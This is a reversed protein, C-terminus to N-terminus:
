KECYCAYGLTYKKERDFLRDFVWLIPPTILYFLQFSLIFLPLAIIILPSKFRRLFIWPMEQLRVALYSFFGGREKIFIVKFGANKFLLELGYRAFNFYNHPEDHLGWGQPCTLFLKGKKKLIRYFENIVKQPDQVHELVQLNIIADYTNESRPINHLDCIFDLNERDDYAKDVECFDTAEYKHNKYFIRYNQSGAGADLVRAGQPIEKASFVVFNVISGLEPHFVNLMIRLLSNKLIFRYAKIMLRQTRKGHASLM